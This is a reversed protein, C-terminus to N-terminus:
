CGGEHNNTAEKRGSPFRFSGVNRPGDILINSGDKNYQILCYADNNAPSQEANIWKNNLFIYAGIDSGVTVKVILSNKLTVTYSGNWAPSDQNSNGLVSCPQSIKNFTCTGESQWSDPPSPENSHEPDRVQGASIYGMEGCADTKYWRDSHYGSDREFHIINIVKRTKISCLIPGNPSTRVNSPPDFVIGKNVDYPISAIAASNQSTLTCLAVSNVISFFPAIFKLNM